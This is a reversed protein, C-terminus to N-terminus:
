NQDRDRWIVLVEANKKPKMEEQLVRSLEGLCFVSVIMMEYTKEREPVMTM